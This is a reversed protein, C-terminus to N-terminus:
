INNKKIEFVDKISIKFKDSLKEIFDSDNNTKPGDINVENNNDKENNNTLVFKGSLYSRLEKIVSLTTERSIGSKECFKTVESNLNKEEECNERAVM